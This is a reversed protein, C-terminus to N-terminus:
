LNDIIQSQGLKLQSWDWEWDQNEIDERYQRIQFVPIIVNISSPHDVSVTASLNPFDFLM